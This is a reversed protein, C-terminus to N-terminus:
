KMEVIFFPSSVVITKGERTHLEVYQTTRSNVKGIHVRDKVFVAYEKSRITWAFALVATVVLVAFVVSSTHRKM